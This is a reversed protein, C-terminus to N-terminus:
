KVSCTVLHSGIDAFARSKGGAAADVRLNTDGAQMLWDQLYSGQILYLKGTEDRGARPARKRRVM